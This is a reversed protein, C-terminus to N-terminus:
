RKRTKAVIYSKNIVITSISPQVGKFVFRINIRNKDHKLFKNLINKDSANFKNLRVPNTLKLRKVFMERFSTDKM